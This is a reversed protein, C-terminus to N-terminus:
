DIYLYVAELLESKKLLEKIKTILLKEDYNEAGHGFDVFLYKTKYVNDNLKLIDEFHKDINDLVLEYRGYLDDGIQTPYLTLKEKPYLSCVEKKEFLSKMILDENKVLEENNMVFTGLSSFGTLQRDFALYHFDKDHKEYVLDNIRDTEKQSLRKNSNLTLIRM